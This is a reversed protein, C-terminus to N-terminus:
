RRMRAIDKMEEENIIPVANSKHMTGIGKVLTGTYKQTETRSTCISGTDRSPYSATERRYAPVAHPDSVGRLKKTKTCVRIKKRRRGTADYNLSGQILPM